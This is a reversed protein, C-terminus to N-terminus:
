SRDLSNTRGKREPNGGSNMVDMDRCFATGSVEATAQNVPFAEAPGCLAKTKNAVPRRRIEVFCGRDSNALLILPQLYTFVM